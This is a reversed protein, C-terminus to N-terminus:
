TKLFSYSVPLLEGTRPKFKKRATAGDVQQGFDRFLGFLQIALTAFADEM